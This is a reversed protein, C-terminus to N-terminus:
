AKGLLLDVVWCGRVHPGPQRCHALSDETGCGAAALAEALLPLNEFRRADYIERALRVALWGKGTSWSPDWAVTRFPNGLVDRLLDSQAARESAWAPDREAYPFQNGVALAANEITGACNALEDSACAAALAAAPDVQGSFPCYVAGQFFNRAAYHSIRLEEATALGDSYREAVDVADRCPQETIRHWIRRCCAVAFLRLKRDSATSRGGSARRLFSLLPEPRPCALWGAENM